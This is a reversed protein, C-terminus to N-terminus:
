DRVGRGPRPAADGDAPTLRPKPDPDAAGPYEIAAQKRLEALLDAQRQQRERKLLVSRIRGEVEDLPAIGADRRATVKIIHYGLSTKVVGSVQGPSLAFAAAEFDADLEGKAFYGLDGGDKSSAPDQSHARALEAFDGGQRLQALIAEASQKAKDRQATTAGEPLRILIHSARIEAPHRFEDRHRDYFEQVQEPSIRIEKWVSSELLRKVAMTRRTETRVDAESLGKARLAAGYEKPSGFHQKTRAIEADVASDPVEIGRRQSEQYLLELDILSELANGAYRARTAADADPGGVAVLGDVVQLVARRTIPAGNVIAVVERESGVQAQAVGALLLCALLWGPSRWGCRRRRGSPRIPLCPPRSTM